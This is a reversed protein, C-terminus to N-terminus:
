SIISERRPKNCVSCIVPSLKSRTLLDVDPHTVYEIGTLGKYEMKLDSEKGWLNYYESSAKSWAQYAKESLAKLTRCEDFSSAHAENHTADYFADGAERSADLLLRERAREQILRAYLRTLEQKIEEVRRDGM